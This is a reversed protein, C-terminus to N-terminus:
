RRAEVLGLLREFFEEGEGHGDAVVELPKLPRYGVTHLDGLLGAYVDSTM